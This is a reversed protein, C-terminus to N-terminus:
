WGWSAHVGLFAGAAATPPQRSEISSVVSRWSAAPSPIRTRGNGAHVGESTLAVGIRATSSSRSTLPEPRQRALARPCADRRHVCRHRRRSPPLLHPLQREDRIRHPASAAHQPAITLPHDVPLPEVDYVDLGAGAIRGARLADILAAEDVIPGRSTNILYASPKMLALDAGGILGRSAASLPMHVTIVDATSFPERKDVARVGHPEARAQTLNPSWVIVTM